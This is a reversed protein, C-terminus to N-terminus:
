SRPSFLFRRAKISISTFSFSGGSQIWCVLGVEFGKLCDIALLDNGHRLIFDIM